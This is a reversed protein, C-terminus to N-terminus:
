KDKKKEEKKENEDDKGTKEEMELVKGDADYKIELTKKDATDILVEFTVKDDKTIEEVKKFKAKPYKADIAATVAKPLDKAAIDKEIETIKGDETLTVEITQGKVKIQVEFLTKDDEKEKSASVLEADKFKEKVAALVKAPLKDIAIKEEDAQAAADFTLCALVAFLLKWKRM